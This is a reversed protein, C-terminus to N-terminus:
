CETFRIPTKDRRRIRDKVQVMVGKIITDAPKCLETLNDKRAGNLADAHIQALQEILENMNKPADVEKSKM